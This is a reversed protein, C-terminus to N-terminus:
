FISDSAGLNIPAILPEASINSERKGPTSRKEGVKPAAINVNAALGRAGKRALRVHQRLIIQQQEPRPFYMGSLHSTAPKRYM